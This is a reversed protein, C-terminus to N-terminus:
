TSYIQSTFYQVLFVQGQYKLQDGRQIIDYNCQGEELYLYYYIMKTFFRLRVDSIADFDIAVAVTRATFRFNIGVRAAM